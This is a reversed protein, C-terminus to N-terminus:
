AALRGELEFGDVEDEGAEGPPLHAARDGHIPEVQQDRDAAQEEGQMEQGDIWMSLQDLAADEPLPFMYVGQLRQDLPNRFVQDAVTTAVQGDISVKVDHTEVSLPFLGNQPMPRTRRAGAPPPASVTLGRAPPAPPGPLPATLPPLPPPQPPRIM